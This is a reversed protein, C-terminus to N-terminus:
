EPTFSLTLNVPVTFDISSLKALKKLTIIGHELGFNQAKVILPSYLTIVKNGFQEFVMFQATLIGSVGHLDVDFTINHIGPTLDEPKLQTHIDATPYMDSQFLYKQIRENRIPINTELSKLDIKIELYNNKNITGNFSKFSSVEAVSNNKTTIISIKSYEPDLKWSNIPAPKHQQCASM